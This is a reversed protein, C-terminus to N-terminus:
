TGASGAIPGVPPQVRSAAAGQRAAEDRRFRRALFRAPDIADLLDAEAPLPAGTISAALVEAGLAASAIGRSGLAGCVFLGPARAIFRPQDLRTSRPAVYGEAMGAAVVGPVAGIIPLRDDSSWRFGERGGLRDLPPPAPLDLMAVLRDLNLRQEEQRLSVDDDDWASSAGFWVSGDLAPVVYGAGAIPLRPLAVPALDGAAAVSLQGRQRRIPWPTTGRLAGDGTCLVVVPASAITEGSDDHLSWGADRRHLSSAGCGLRLEVNPAADLLFSRALGRPDVWGGAPFHWAPSSLRTGALRSAAEPGLAEVYERPLGQADIVAQMEVVGQATEVRLLGATSGHVDHRDIARRVAARAALAAARHFRAHWGDGRHVVGHFIGAANGSGEDAITVRREIVLSRVGRDALACALACGALGAGVIIVPQSTAQTGTPSSTPADRETRPSSPATSASPRRPSPRPSFQPAFRGRTIDRKGGSGPAKDVVFGASRLGDRVARAATWSAATAGPAALRAMAKFLRADWMAPNRAPAFGDLFFADVEAVLQPLWADVPGFAVLLEVRGDDVVIRHLNCTLPPWQRTLEAALPALSAERELAAFTALTPPSAEISLFHLRRCRDPDTRWASWTALFNNGLGFGTELVVFRDRGRWRAALAEGDLFVHRAQALAGTRPHYVDGYDVSRPTGDDDIAIRAPVIPTTKM